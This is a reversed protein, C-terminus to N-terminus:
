TAMHMVGTEKSDAFFYEQLSFKPNLLNAWTTINKSAAVREDLVIGWVPKM